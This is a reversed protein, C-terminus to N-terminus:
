RQHADHPPQKWSWRGDAYLAGCSTCTTPEPWQERERYPDHRKEKILRDKRQRPDHGM